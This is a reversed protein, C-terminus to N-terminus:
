HPHFQVNAEGLLSYPPLFRGPLCFIDGFVFVDFPNLKLDGGALM